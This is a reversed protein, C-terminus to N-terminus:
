RQIQSFDCTVSRESDVKTGGMFTLVRQLSAFLASSSLNVQRTYSKGNLSGSLLSSLEGSGDMMKKRAEDRWVRVQHTNSEDEQCYSVLANEFDTM